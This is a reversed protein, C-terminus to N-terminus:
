DITPAFPRESATELASVFTRLDGGLAANLESPDLRFILISYGVQADPPRVRLYECLRAFRLKDYLQWARTWEAPTADGLLEPHQEPAGSMTLMTPAIARLGQFLEEDKATWPAHEQAYVHQLMTASIAYIGPELSVWPREKRFEPLRPLAIADIGYYAPEGTGFYSLHVPDGASNNEALWDALGPLDQGWDLSSDVLHRYGHAPGGVIRNFFALHHPHIQWAAALQASGLLLVGGTSTWLAARNIRRSRVIAWGLAGSLMFLVPYTPLIHRHGINLHSTLSFTWYVGFLVLWPSAQYLRRRFAAGHRRAVFAVVGLASGFALLEALTTKYLFAKPFFTTWGHISLQGDLFAGRAESFSLVYAFGYLFAEPLVRWDRLTLVLKEWGPAHNLINDWDLPLQGPPLDPAFMAFRFGYFAWIAGIAAVAHLLLTGTIAALRARRGPHIRGFLVLDPGAFIRILALLFLMLLLLVASFKAVCALGLSLASLVLISRRHDHLHWWFAGVTATFLLAMPMDSTAIGSHALLTPSATALVVAVLAGARGFFRKAGLAILLLTAMGFCANMIRGAQLLASPDNGSAYFFRYSLMYTLCDTWDPGAPPPFNVEAFLLPLAHWRQPLVGNEPQIRYDGFHNYAYGGTLHAIEDNTTSKNTMASVAALGHLVIVLAILLWTTLTLRRQRPDHATM